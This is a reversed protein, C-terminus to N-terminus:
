PRMEPSRRAMYRFAAVPAIVLAVLVLAVSAALPWDRNTFFENWLVHGIMLTRSDGILAPIIFEGLAPVFVLLCGAHIGPRALPLTVHWFVALPSAGLDRAAEVLATHPRALRAYVPLVMFPLYAYCIGVCVAFDTGLFTVPGALIGGKVLLTNILGTPALLGMWAYVRILFSTWFPLIVAIVLVAQWHRPTGAMAFAVPFGVALTLLTAITAIKISSVLAQWYLADELLFRYNEFDVARLFITIDALRWGPPFHPAYPPIAIVADSLSIKLVIFFPALFFIALWLFPPLIPLYRAGRM